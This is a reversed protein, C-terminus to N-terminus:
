ALPHPMSFAVEEATWKGDRRNENMRPMLVNVYHTRASLSSRKGGLRKSVKIWDTAGDRGSNKFENYAAILAQNQLSVSFNSHPFMM